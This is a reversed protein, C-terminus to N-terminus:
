SLTLEPAVPGLYLLIVQPKGLVDPKRSGVCALLCVHVPANDPRGGASEGEGAMM